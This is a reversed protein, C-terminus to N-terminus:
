TAHIIVSHLLNSGFIYRECGCREGSVCKRVIYCLKPLALIICDPQNFTM